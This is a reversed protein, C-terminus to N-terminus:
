SGSSWSWTLSLGGDRFGARAGRRWPYRNGAYNNYQISFTRPHWDFYGFGYTYDPDWPQQQSRRPYYSVTTTAYLWKYIGYKVALGAKQKNRHTTGTADAYHPSWSYNV